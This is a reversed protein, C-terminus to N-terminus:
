IGPSSVNNRIVISFDTLTKGKRRTLTKHVQAEVDNVYAALFRAANETQGQQAANKAAMLSACLHNAVGQDSVYLQTLSCLGDFGFLEGANSQLGSLSVGIARQEESSLLDFRMERNVSNLFDNLPIDTGARFNLFEDISVLGNGSSSRGESLSRDLIDFASNINEPSGVFDRVSRLSSRDMNLLEAIKEAGAARIRDFMEQRAEDAGPTPIIRLNGDQDILLTDAATIGPHIPEAGLTSNSVFYFYGSKQGSALEADLACRDPNAACFAALDALDRPFEGNQSRFTNAAALLQQLNDQAMMRSTSERARQVAPLLLHILVAIIAIVVLLEILTFGAARSAARNLAQRQQETQTRLPSNPHFGGTVTARHVSNIRMDLGRESSSYKAETSHIFRQGAEAVIL